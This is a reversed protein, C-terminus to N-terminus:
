PELVVELVSYAGITIGFDLGKRGLLGIVGEV